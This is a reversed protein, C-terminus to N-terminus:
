PLQTGMPNRPGSVADDNIYRVQLKERVAADGERMERERDMYELVVSLLLRASDVTPSPGIVHVAAGAAAKVPFNQQQQQHQHQHQQPWGQAQLDVVLCDSQQRLDLLKTRPLRGLM